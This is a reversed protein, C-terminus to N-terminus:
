NYGHARPYTDFLVVQKKVDPDCFDCQVDSKEYYGNALCEECIRYLVVAGKRYGKVGVKMHRLGVLKVGRVPVKGKLMTYRYPNETLWDQIKARIKEEQKRFYKKISKTFAEVEHLAFQGSTVPEGRGLMM